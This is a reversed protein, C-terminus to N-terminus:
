STYEYTTLDCDEHLRVQRDESSLKDIFAILGGNDFSWEQTTFYELVETGKIARQHLRVM